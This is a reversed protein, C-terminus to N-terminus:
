KNQKKWEDVFVCLVYNICVCMLCYFFKIGCCFFFFSVSFKREITKIIKLYLYSGLGVGEIPIYSASNLDFNIIPNYLVNVHVYM